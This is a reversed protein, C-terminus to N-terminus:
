LSLISHYRGRLRPFRATSRSVTETQDSFYLFGFWVLGYKVLGFRAMDYKVLGFRILCGLVEMSFLFPHLVSGNILVALSVFWIWWVLGFKAM